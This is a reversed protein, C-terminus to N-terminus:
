LGGPPCSRGVPAGASHSAPARSDKDANFLACSHQAMLLTRLAVPDQALATLPGALGCVRGCAHRCANWHGRRHVLIAPLVYVPLYVPLARLYAGPFFALANGNCSQGEHMWRCPAGEVM